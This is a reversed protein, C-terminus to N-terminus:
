FAADYFYDVGLLPDAKVRIVNVFVKCIAFCGDGPIAEKDFFAACLILGYSFVLYGTVIM